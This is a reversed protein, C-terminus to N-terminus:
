AGSSEGGAEADAAAVTAITHADHEGCEGGGGGGDEDSGGDGGAGVVRAAQRAGGGHQGAV